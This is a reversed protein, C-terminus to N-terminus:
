FEDNIIQNLKCVPLGVINFYDGDIREVFVGAYEQIGYSGAKDFPQFKDVYYEIEDVSLKKRYEKSRQRIDGKIKRIDIKQM